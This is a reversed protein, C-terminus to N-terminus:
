KLKIDDCLRYLTAGYKPKCLADVMWEVTMQTDFKVYGWREGDIFRGTMNSDAWHLQDDACDEVFMLSHPGIGGGYEGRMQFFDGRKVQRLMDAAALRNEEDTIDEDYRFAGAIVFPNGAEATKNAWEVGYGYPRCKEEPNNLPMQLNVDPYGGIMYENKFSNFLFEVYNKCVGIDGKYHARRFNEKNDAAMTEALEIMQGIFRARPEENEAVSIAFGFCATLLVIIAAYALKETIRSMHVVKKTKGTM